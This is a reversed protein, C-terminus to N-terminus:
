CEWGMVVDHRLREIVRAGMSKLLDVPDQLGYREHQGNSEVIMVPRCTLITNRGGEIVASEFGEVDIKIFDVEQFNFEDLPVVPTKGHGSIHSKGSNETDAEFGTAGHEPGLACAHLIASDSKVNARWCQAHAIVPEFAHLSQFKEALWMSWFGVHAGIDLATRFQRVHSLAATMKDYQYVGVNCGYFDQKPVRDMMGKFHKDGDPLWIGSHKIM